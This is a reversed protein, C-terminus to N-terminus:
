KYWSEVGFHQKLDQRFSKLYIDREERSDEKIHENLITLCERVISQAFRQATGHWIDSHYVNFNAQAALQDFRDPNDPLLVTQYARDFEPFDSNM